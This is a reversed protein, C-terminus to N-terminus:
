LSIGVEEDAILDDEPDVSGVEVDLSDAPPRKVRLKELREIEELECNINKLTAELHNDEKDVVPLKLDGHEHEALSQPSLQDVGFIKDINRRAEDEAKSDKEEEITYTGSESVKDEEGNKEKDKKASNELSKKSIVPSILELQKASTKNILDKTVKLSRESEYKVLEKPVKLKRQTDFQRSESYLDYESSGSITDEKAKLSDVSGTTNQFMKDILYSTSDNLQTPQIEQSVAKRARIVSKPKTLTSSIPPRRKVSTKTVSFNLAFKVTFGTYFPWDFISLVFIKIVFPLKIFTLLM